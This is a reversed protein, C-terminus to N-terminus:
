VTLAIAKVDKEEHLKGKKVGVVTKIGNKKAEDVVRKTVIGDFVISEIGKTKDLAVLLDRVPITEVEKM